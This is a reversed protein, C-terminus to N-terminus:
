LDAALWSSLFAAIAKCELSRGKNTTRAEKALIEAANEYAEVAAQTLKKFKETNEAQRSARAYCLGANQWTEAVFSPDKSEFNLAQAYSKAAELWNYRQEEEKAKKLSVAVAPDPTMTIWKLISSFTDFIEKSAPNRVNSCAMGTHAM